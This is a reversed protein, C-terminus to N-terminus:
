RYVGKQYNTKIVFLEKFMRYSDRFLRVTTAPSDVWRVPAEKVKYGLAKLAIFM